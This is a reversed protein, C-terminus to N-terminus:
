LIVLVGNFYTQFVRKKLVNLVLSGSHLTKFLTVTM